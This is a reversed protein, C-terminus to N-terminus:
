RKPWRRAWILIAALHLAARYAIALEDCRIARSSDARDALVTAPRTRAM